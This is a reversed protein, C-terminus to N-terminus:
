LAGGELRQTILKSIAQRKGGLGAHKIDHCAGILACKGHKHFAQM